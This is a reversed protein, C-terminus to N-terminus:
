RQTWMPEGIGWRSGLHGGARSGQMPWGPFSNVLQLQNRAGNVTFQTGVVRQAEAWNPNNQLADNSSGYPAVTAMVKLGRATAYNMVQQLYAVNQSSWFSATMFSFSSDWFVVGTYGDQVAQDILSESSQVAAATRSTHTIGTGCTM